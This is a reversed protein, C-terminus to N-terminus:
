PERRFTQGVLVYDVLRDLEEQTLRDEYRPMAVGEPPRLIYDRLEEQSRPGKLTALDVAVRRGVGAVSHCSTCGYRAFLQRGEEAEATLLVGPPVPLPESDPWGTWPSRLRLGSLGVLLAAVVIVVAVAWPRRRMGRKPSRDIFPLLLMGLLVALPFVVVFWAAVGKPLLAILASYWWWWWEEAPFSQEVLNAEPMLEPPGALLSLGVVLSFVVMAMAGSKVATEPFFVEGQEPDEAQDKYMKKQQEATYVPEIRERRSTVGHMIVLYLHWATAGLILMPVFIVHVAYIRTLARAGVEYGGQVFVVLGEGIWPVRSFMHLSVKLAYVSREDWRLVYGTFSMVLIAFFLVVGILWTGERPFKYGAVLVQRLVHWVAMVVMMGASWYHLARIFWGLTQEKTIYQVSAYAADPSPTYTLTMMMGTAVLVGLLLMLTAGDGYYWPAKAVRRDLANERIPKLGFRDSIWERLSELV